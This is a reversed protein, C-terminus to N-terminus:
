SVGPQAQAGGRPWRLRAGSTRALWCLDRLMNAPALACSGSITQHARCVSIAGAGADCRRSASRVSGVRAPTGYSRSGSSHPTCSNGSAQDDQAQPLACCRLLGADTVNNAARRWRAAQLARRAVERGLTLRHRSSADDRSRRNDPLQKSLESQTQMVHASQQSRRSAASTNCESVERSSGGAGAAPIEATCRM